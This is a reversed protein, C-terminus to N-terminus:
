LPPRQVCNGYIECRYMEDCLRRGVLSTTLLQLDKTKGLPLATARHIIGILESLEFFIDKSNVAVLQKAVMCTKSM